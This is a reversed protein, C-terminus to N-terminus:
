GAYSDAPGLRNSKATNYLPSGPLAQCPYMNVMETNLELALDLTQQM